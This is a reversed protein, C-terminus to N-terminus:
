NQTALVTVVQSSTVKNVTSLSTPTTFRLALNCNANKQQTASLTLAGGSVTPALFTTGGDVSAELMFVDIAPAAGFNWAAGFGNTGNAVTVSSTITINGRNIFNLATAQTTIGPTGGAPGTITGQTASAYATNVTAATITWERQGIVNANLDPNTWEIANSATITCTININLATAAFAGAPALVLVTLLALSRFLNM